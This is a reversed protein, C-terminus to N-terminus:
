AGGGVRRQIREGEAHRRMRRQARASEEAAVDAAEDLEIAAVGAAAGRMRPITREFADPHSHDQLWRM